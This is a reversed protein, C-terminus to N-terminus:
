PKLERVSASYGQIKDNGTVLLGRFGTYEKWLDMAEQLSRANIVGTIVIRHRLKPGLMRRDEPPLDLIPNTAM